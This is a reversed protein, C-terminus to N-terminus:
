RRPRFIGFASTYGHLFTRGEVPGIEGNCFFGGLPLNGVRQLFARSDHDPSGYLHLGRGLCSFLLAGQPAASGQGCAAAYRALRRDLDDASTRADRVHFQVVQGVRLQAGVALVGREPDLGVLNRVLFDGQRYESQASRMEIGLFLSSRMREREAGAVRDFLGRLVDVARTGDLEFLLNDRCRTVFMPTGIPRCGQAVIADVEVDGLLAIGVVGDHYVDDGLYLSNEGARTGSSALGGIKVSAPFRADLTRLLAEADCTFPDALLVLHPAPEDPDASEAREEVEFDRASEEGLRIPRLEVGPLQAALLALGPRLEIERGAGIVSRGSCGVLLASALLERALELLREDSPTHCSSVFLLALDPAAGSLADRVTTAAEAFAAETDPQESVGAAWRVAAGV